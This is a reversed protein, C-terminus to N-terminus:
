MYMANIAVWFSLGNYGSDPCVSYGTVADEPTVAACTLESQVFRTVFLYELYYLVESQVINGGGLLLPDLVAGIVKGDQASGLIQVDLVQLGKSIYLVYGRLFHESVLM